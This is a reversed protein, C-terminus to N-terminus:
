QGSPSGALGHGYPLAVRRVVGAKEIGRTSAENLVSTYIWVEHGEKELQYTLWKLAWPYCGRGRCEAATWCDYIVAVKRPPDLNLVSGDGKVVATDFRVWSVHQLRGQANTLSLMRDGQQRREVARKMRAANVWQPYWRHQAGLGVLDVEGFTLRCGEPPDGPLSSSQLQFYLEDHRQLRSQVERWVRGGLKKLRLV